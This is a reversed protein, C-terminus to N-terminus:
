SVIFITLEFFRNVQHGVDIGLTSLCKIMDIAGSRLKYLGYATGFLGIIGGFAM